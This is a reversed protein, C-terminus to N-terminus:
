LDLLQISNFKTNENAIFTKVNFKDGKKSKKRFHRVNNRFVNTSLLGKNKQKLLTKSKFLFNMAAM